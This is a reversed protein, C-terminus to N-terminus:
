TRKVVFSALQNLVIEVAQNAAVVGGYPNPPADVTAAFEKTAIIRGTKADVIEAYLKFRVFSCGCSFVQVLELIKTNLVYDYQILRASTTVAHFHKTNRLTKAILPRLMIAPPNLWKNKAFYEIHYQQETYAMDDTIYSPNADVPSVFITSSHDPRVAVHPISSIVYSTYNDTKVPSLLSCGALTFMVMILIFKILERIM